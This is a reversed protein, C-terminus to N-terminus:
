RVTIVYRIVHRRRLHHVVVIFGDEGHFDPASQYFLVSGGVQQANCGYRPSDEREINPYNTGKDTFLSGHDPPKEVRIDPYVIVQCDPKIQFFFDLQAKEGSNVQRHLPRSSDVTAPVTVVCATLAVTVIVMLLGLAKVPSM